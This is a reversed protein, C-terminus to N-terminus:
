ARVRPESSKTSPKLTYTGASARRPSQVHRRRRQSRLYPHNVVGLYAHMWPHVDCKVALLVETTTLAVTNKIGPLPQSFNFEQNSRGMGHVTHMTQITTASRSPSALASGPSTRCTIAARRSSRSPHRRRISDTPAALDDKIYVFVNELAGADVVFTESTAGDKNASECVPDSAMQILANAPVAGEITVRGSITGTTAADVPKTNPAPASAKNSEAGGCAFVGLLVVSAIAPSLRSM